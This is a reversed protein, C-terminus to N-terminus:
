DISDAQFDINNRPGYDM